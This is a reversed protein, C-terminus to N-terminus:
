REAFLEPQEPAAEQEKKAALGNIQTEYFNIRALMQTQEPLGKILDEMGSEMFRGIKRDIENRGELLRTYEQKATQLREPLSQPRVNMESPRDPQQTQQGIELQQEFGLIFGKIKGADQSAHLIEMPEERLVKVWEGVYHAHRDPNHPLGLERTLMLSAIEARLEERAYTESGFRGSLDRNLRSEHGSWHGLEHLAVAYYEGQGDFRDKPPMAIFDRTPSYYAENGGHRIVAGSAALLREARQHNEWVPEPTKWEPLGDTQEASFVTFGKFFPQELACREKVPEGNADRVTKGNEDKKVRESHTILRVLGVGREGKRVQAGVSEAQRYTLWRPDNRGQLMLRLYNLGSYETGSVPNFPFDKGMAPHWPRQFPATGQQLREILEKAIQGAYEEQRNKRHATM